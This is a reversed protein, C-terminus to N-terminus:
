SRWPNAMKREVGWCTRNEILLPLHFIFSKRGGGLGRWKEPEHLLNNWDMKIQLHTPQSHGLRSSGAQLVWIETLFGLQTKKKETQFPDLLDDSPPQHGWHMQYHPTLKGANLCVLGIKELFSRKKLHPTCSQKGHDVPFALEDSLSRRSFYCKLPFFGCINITNAPSGKLPDEKGRVPSLNLKEM